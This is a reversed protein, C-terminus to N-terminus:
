TEKSLKHAEYLSHYCGRLRGLERRLPRKLLIEVADLLQKKTEAPFDQEGILRQLEDANNLLQIGFVGITRDVSRVQTELIQRVQDVAM